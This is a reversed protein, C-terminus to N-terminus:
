IKAQLNEKEMRTDRSFSEGEQQWQLDEKLCELRCPIASDEHKMLEEFICLELHAQEIQDWLDNLQKTLGMASCQYGGPLNKIKKEMKAVRKAETTM